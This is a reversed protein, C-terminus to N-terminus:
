RNPRPPPELPRPVPSGTTLINQLMTMPSPGGPVAPKDPGSSPPANGEVPKAAGPGEKSTLSPGGTNSGTSGMGGIIFEIPPKYELLPGTTDKLTKATVEQEAAIDQMRAQSLIKRREANKQEVKLLTRTNVDKLAVPKQDEINRLVARIKGSNQALAITAAEQPTVEFTFNTYNQDKGGPTKQKKGESDTYEKPVVSQGTALVKVNQLVMMVEMGGDPDSKDPVLLMLDVRNGPKVMQAMSNIEDVEITIARMGDEVAESFTRAKDIFFSVNIPYGAKLPRVLKAGSVRDFDNPTLTNEDILDIPVERKVLTNGLTSGAPLNQTSVLVETTRGGSMGQKLEAAITKERNKLYASSLYTAAIGLLIATFLLIVLPNIKPLKNLLKM